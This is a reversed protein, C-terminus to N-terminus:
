EVDGGKYPEPLDMWATVKGSYIEYHGWQFPAVERKNYTMTRVSRRTTGDWESKEVSVLYKGNEKPAGESVPTWQQASPVQKIADTLEDWEEALLECETNEIANIAHQRYILDNMPEGKQMDATFIMMM